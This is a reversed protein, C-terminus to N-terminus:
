RESSRSHQFFQSEVNCDRGRQSQGARRHGPAAMTAVSATMAAAVTTAAVATEMASAMDMEATAPMEPVAM